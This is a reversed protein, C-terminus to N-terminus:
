MLGSTLTSGAISQALDDVELVFSRVERDEFKFLRIARADASLNRLSLSIRHAIWWTVPVAVLLVALMSLIAYLRLTRVGALLEDHPAAM